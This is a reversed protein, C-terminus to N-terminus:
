SKQKNLRDSLAKLHAALEEKTMFVTQTGFEKNDIRAGGRRSTKNKKGM